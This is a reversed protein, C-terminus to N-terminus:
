KFVGMGKRGPIENERELLIGKCNVMLLINKLINKVM